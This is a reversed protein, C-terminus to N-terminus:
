LCPTNLGARQGPPVRRAHLRGQLGRHHAAALFANPQGLRRSNARANRHSYLSSLSSNARSRPRCPTTKVQSATWEDCCGFILPVTKSQWSFGTNGLDGVDVGYEALYRQMVMFYVFFGATAQIMGIQGYAFFVLQWTVQACL